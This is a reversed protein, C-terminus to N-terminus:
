QNPIVIWDISPTGVVTVPTVGDSGIIEITFETVTKSTVVLTGV